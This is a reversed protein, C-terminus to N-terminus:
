DPGGAPDEVSVTWRWANAYGRLGGADTPIVTCVHNGQTLGTYSVTGTSCDTAPGDDLRCALTGSGSPWTSSFTLQASHAPTIRAPGSTIDAVPVPNVYPDASVESFGALAEPSTDIWRACSPTPAANFYSIAKVLPQTEFWTLGQRFWEAKREPDPPQDPDEGSGWEAIMVDRGPANNRAWEVFKDFIDGVSRWPGDHGACGHWNYGDAAVWDVYDRGPFWKEPDLDKEFTWAMMIWTWSVNTVGEDLTWIDHIRRWAAVFDRATGGAWHDNEPEHHFTFFLPAGYDKVAQAKARIQDDYAGAAIDRWTAVEGDVRMASWSLIQVRGEDRSALDARTPWAEDWLTFRRDLVVKRGIEAEFHAIAERQTAGNHGDPPVYAGWLAGTQLAPASLPNSPREVAQTAAASPPTGASGPGALVMAVLLISACVRM